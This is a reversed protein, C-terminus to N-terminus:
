PQRVIGHERRAVTPLHAVGILCKSTGVTMRSNIHNNLLAAAM